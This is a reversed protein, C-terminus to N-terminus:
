QLVITRTTKFVSEIWNPFTKKKWQFTIKLHKIQIDEQLIEIIREQPTDLCDSYEGGSRKLKQFKLFRNIEQDFFTNDAANRQGKKEFGHSLTM